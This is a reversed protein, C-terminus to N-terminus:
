VFNYVCGLSSDSKFFLGGAFEEVLDGISDAELVVGVAGLLDVAVADFAVGEERARGGAAVLRRRTATGQAFM